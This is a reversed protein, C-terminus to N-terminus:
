IPSPLRKLLIIRFVRNSPPKLKRSAHSLTSLIKVLSLTLLAIRAGTGAANGVSRVKDLPCDPIMGLLMAYKTDIHSGFAGALSIRDVKEIGMHDMLLQAGAFLAAKALQISRVDSQIIRIEPEGERILYSFTSGDAQVCDYRKALDGDIIGDTKLIGALYM